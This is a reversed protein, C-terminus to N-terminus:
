QRVFPRIYRIRLSEAIWKKYIAKVLVSAERFTSILSIVQGQVCFTTCKSLCISWFFIRQLNDYTWQFVTHKSFTLDDGNYLVAKKHEETVISPSSRDKLVEM